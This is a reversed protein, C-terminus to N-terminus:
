DELENEESEETDEETLEKIKDDILGFIIDEVAEEKESDGLQELIGHHMEKLTMEGDEWKEFMELAMEDLGDETEEESTEPLMGEGEEEHDHSQDMDEIEEPEATKKSASMLSALSIANKADMFMNFEEASDDKRGAIKAAEKFGVWDGFHDVSNPDLKLSSAIKQFENILKLM